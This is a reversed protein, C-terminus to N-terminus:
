ARSRHWVIGSIMVLGLLLMLFTNPEPVASILTFSHVPMWVTTPNDVLYVRLQLEDLHTSAYDLVSNVTNFETASNDFSIGIFEINDSRYLNRTDISVFRGEDNLSADLIFISGNTESTEGNFTVSKVAQSFYQLGEPKLAETDFVYDFTYIDGISFPPLNGGADTAEATVRYTVLEAHAIGVSISLLFLVVKFLVKM